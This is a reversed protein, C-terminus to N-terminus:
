VTRRVLREVRVRGRRTVKVALRESEEDGVMAGSRYRRNVGITLGCVHDIVQECEFHTWFAVLKENV